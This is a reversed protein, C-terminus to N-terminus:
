ENKNEKHTDEQLKSIVEATTTDDSARNILVANLTEIHGVWKGTYYATISIVSVFLLLMVGFIKIICNVTADDPRNQDIDKFDCSM